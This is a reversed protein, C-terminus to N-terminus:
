IAVIVFLFSPARLGGRKDNAADPRHRFRAALVPVQRHLLRAHGDDFLDDQGYRPDFANAGDPTAAILADVNYGKTLDTGSLDIYSSARDPIIGGKNFYNFIHRATKQNFLNLM